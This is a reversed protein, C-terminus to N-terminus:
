SSTHESSSGALHKSSAQEIDARHRSNSTMETTIRGVTWKTM